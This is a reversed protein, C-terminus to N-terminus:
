LSQSKRQLYRKKLDLYKCYKFYLHIALGIVVFLVIMNIYIIILGLYDINGTM